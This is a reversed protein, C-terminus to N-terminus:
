AASRRSLPDQHNGHQLKEILRNTVDDADTAPSAVGWHRRAWAEVAERHFLDYTQDPRPFDAPLNSRLWSETRYFVSDAVEAWTMTLPLFQFERRRKTAM